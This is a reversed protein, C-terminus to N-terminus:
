QKAATIEKQMEAIEQECCILYHRTRERMVELTKNVLEPGMDKMVEALADRFALPAEHYNNAGDIPQFHITLSGNACHIKGTHVATSRSQQGLMAAWKEAYEQESKAQKWADLKIM